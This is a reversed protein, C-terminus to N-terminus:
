ASHKPPHDISRVLLGLLHAEPPPPLLGGPLAIPRPDSQFTVQLSSAGLSGCFADVARSPSLTSVRAEPQDFACGVVLAVFLLLLLKTGPARM